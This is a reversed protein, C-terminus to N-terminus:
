LKLPRLPNSVSESHVDADMEDFENQWNQDEDGSNHPPEFLGKAYFNRIAWTRSWTRSSFRQNGQLSFDQMFATLSMNAAQSRKLEEARSKEYNDEAYQGSTAESLETDTATQNLGVLSQANEVKIATAKVAPPRPCQIINIVSPHEQESTLPQAITSSIQKASLGNNLADDTRIRKGNPKMNRVDTSSDKDYIQDNRRKSFPKKSRSAGVAKEHCGSSQAFYDSTKVTSVVVNISQVKSTAPIRQIEQSGEDKVATTEITRQPQNQMSKERVDVNVEIISLPQDQGDPIEKKPEVITPLTKTGKPLQNITSGNDGPATM